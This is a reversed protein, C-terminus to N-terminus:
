KIERIFMNRYHVTNGHDQILIPGPQSAFDTSKKYKSKAFRKKWDDSGFEISVVKEGNLWHEIQNGRAVIRAQNWKEGPPHLTKSDPAAVLEYLSAARHNDIKNDKHKADDLVQYELGLNGKTRYKIGSNGGTSIKFHFKLEFSYYLKKTVISGGRGKKEKDLQLIGDKLSWSDGIESNKNNKSPSNWLGLSDNALLNVWESDAGEPKTQKEPEAQCVSFLFPIIIPLFLHKMPLLSQISAKYVGMTGAIEGLFDNLICRRDSRCTTNVQKLLIPSGFVAM